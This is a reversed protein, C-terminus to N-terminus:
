DGAARVASAARRPTTLRRAPLTTLGAACAAHFYRSHPFLPVAWARVADCDSEGGAVGDPRFAPVDSRGPGRFEILEGDGEVPENAVRSPLRRLAHLADHTM